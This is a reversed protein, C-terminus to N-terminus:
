AGCRVSVSTSKGQGVRVEKSTLVAQSNFNPPGNKSCILKATGTGPSTEKFRDVSCVFEQARGIQFASVEVGMFQGDFAASMDRTDKCSLGEVSFKGQYVKPIPKGAGDDMALKLAAENGRGESSGLDSSKKFLALAAPLDREFHKADRYLEGLNNFASAHGLNKAENYAAVAETMKDAKELARGYQFWLRGERPEVATAKKCAAMAAAANLQGFSVGAAKKQPDSASAALRDCDTPAPQAMASTFILSLCALLLPRPKHTM